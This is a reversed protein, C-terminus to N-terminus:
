SATPPSTLDVRSVGYGRLLRAAREALGPDCVNLQGYAAYLVRRVQDRDVGPFPTSASARFESGLRQFAVLVTRESRPRPRGVASVCYSYIASSADALVQPRPHESREAGGGGCGGALAALVLVLAVV